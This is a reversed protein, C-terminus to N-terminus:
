QQHGQVARLMASSFADPKGAKEKLSELSSLASVGGAKYKKLFTQSIREHEAALAAGSFGSMDMASGGLAVQMNCIASRAIAELPAVAAQLDALATEKVALAVKADVLQGDKQTLQTTLFTLDPGSSQAEPTAPVPDGSVPDGGSAQAETGSGTEPDVAAPANAEVGPTEKNAALDLTAGAALAAVQQDTLPMTNGGQASSNFRSLGGGAEGSRKRSADDILRSLLTNFSLVGDTLGADAAKQGIFEKGDAMHEKVYDVTRNRGRAVHNVFVLCVAGREIYINFL